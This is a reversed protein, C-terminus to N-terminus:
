FPSCSVTGVTIEGSPADDDPTGQPFLEVRMINVTMSGDPPDPVISENFTVKALPPAGPGRGPVMVVHNPPLQAPLALGSIGGIKFSASSGNETTSCKATYNTMRIRPGGYSRLADLRFLKGKVDAKAVGTQPDVACTSSGPGFEIFGNVRYTPSNASGDGGDTDCEALPDMQIETDDYTADVAGISGSALGEEPVAQAPSVGSLLLGAVALGLVGTRRAHRITM